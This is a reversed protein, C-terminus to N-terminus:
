RRDSGFPREALGKETRDGAGVVGYIESRRKLSAASRRSPPQIVTIVLTARRLLSAMDTKVIGNWEEAGVAIGCRSGCGLGALGVATIRKM